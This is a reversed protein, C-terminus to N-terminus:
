TLGPVNRWFCFEWVLLQNPFFKDLVQFSSITLQLTGLAAYGVSQGREPWTASSAVCTVLLDCFRSTPHFVTLFFVFTREPLASPPNPFANQFLQVPAWHHFTLSCKDLHGRPPWELSLPIQLSQRSCHCSSSMATTPLGNSPFGPFSPRLPLCSELSTWPHWSVSVGLFSM